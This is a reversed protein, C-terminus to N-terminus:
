FKLSLRSFGCLTVFTQLPINPLLYILPNRRLFFVNKWLLFCSECYLLPSCPGGPSLWRFLLIWQGFPGDFVQSLFASYWPDFLFGTTLAPCPSPLMTHCGLFHPGAMLVGHQTDAHTHSLSPSSMVTFDSLYGSGHAIIWRSSPRPQAQLHCNWQWLRGHVSNFSDSLSLEGKTWGLSQM